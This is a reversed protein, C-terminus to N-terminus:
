NNIRIKLRVPTRLRNWSSDIYIAATVLFLSALGFSIAKVPTGIQKLFENINKLIICTTCSFDIEHHSHEKCAYISIYLEAIFPVVIFCLLIAFVVIKKQTQKRKRRNQTFNLM